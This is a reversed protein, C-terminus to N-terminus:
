PSIKIELSGSNDVLGEDCDNIRLQLEGSEEVEVMSKDGILFLDDGVRGILAGRQVEPM